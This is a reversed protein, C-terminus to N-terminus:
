LLTNIRDLLNLIGSLAGAGDLLGTIACLLNGLLNGPGREGRVQLDVPALDVVLGLLDLQLGGPIELRLIQCAGAGGSGLLNLPVDTLTQVIETVVEGGGIMQTATGTLTGSGVLQGDVIGLETITLLGEFTGNVLDGVVPINTLLGSGQHGPQHSSSLETASVVEADQAQNIGTPTDACAVALLGATCVTFFRRAFM